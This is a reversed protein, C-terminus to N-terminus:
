FFVNPQIIKRREGNAIRVTSWCNVKVEFGVSVHRSESLFKFTVQKAIGGLRFRRQMEKSRINIDLM